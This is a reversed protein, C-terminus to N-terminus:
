NQDADGGPVVVGVGIRAGCRQPHHRIPGTSQGDTERKGVMCRTHILNVLDTACTKGQMMNSIDSPLIWLDNQGFSPHPSGLTLWTSYIAHVTATDLSVELPKAIAHSSQLIHVIYSPRTAAGRQDGSTVIPNTTTEVAYHMQSIMNDLPEM